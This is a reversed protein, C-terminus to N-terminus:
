AHLLILNATDVQDCWIDRRVSHWTPERPGPKPDGCGRGRVATLTTVQKLMDRPTDGSTGTLPLPPSKPRRRASDGVVLTTPDVM